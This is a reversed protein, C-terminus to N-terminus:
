AARFGWVTMGLATAAHFGEYGARAVDPTATAAALMSPRANTGANTTQTVGGLTLSVDMSPLAGVARFFVRGGAALPMDLARDGYALRCGDVHLCFGFGGFDDNRHFSTAVPEIAAAAAGDCVLTLAGDRRDGAGLFRAGAFLTAGDPGVPFRLDTSVDGSPLPVEPIGSVRGLGTSADAGAYGKEWASEESWALLADGRTAALFLDGSHDDIRITALCETPDPAAVDIAYGAHDRFAVDVVTAPEGQAVPLAAALLALAAFAAEKAGM